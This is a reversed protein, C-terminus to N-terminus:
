ASRRDVGAIPEFAVTRTADSCRGVSVERVRQGGDSGGLAGRPTLHLDVVQPVVEAVLRLLGIRLRAREIACSKSIGGDFESGASRRGVLDAAIQTGFLAVRECSRPM